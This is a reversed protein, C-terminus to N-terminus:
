GGSPGEGQALPSEKKSVYCQCSITLALKDWFIAANLLENLSLFENVESSQIREPRKDKVHKHNFNVINNRNSEFLYPNDYLSVLILLM